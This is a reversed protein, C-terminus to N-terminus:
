NRKANSKNREEINFHCLFLMNTHKQGQQAKTPATPINENNTSVILGDNINFSVGKDNMDELQEITMKNYVIELLTGM